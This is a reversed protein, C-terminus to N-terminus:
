TDVVVQRAARLVRRFGMPRKAAGGVFVTRERCPADSTPGSMSGRMRPAAFREEPPPAITEAQHSSTVNMAPPMAPTRTMASMYRAASGSPSSSAGGAVDQRMRVPLTAAATRVTAANGEGRFTGSSTRGFSDSRFRFRELRQSFIRRRVNASPLVRLQM